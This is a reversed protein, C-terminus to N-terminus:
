IIKSPSSINKWYLFLINRPINRPINRSYEGGPSFLGKSDVTDLKFPILVIISLWLVLGYRAHWANQWSDDLVSLYELTAELDSVEHPLYRVLL